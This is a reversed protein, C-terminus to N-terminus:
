TLTYAFQPIKVLAENMGCRLISTHPVRYSLPPSCKTEWMQSDLYPAGPMKPIISQAPPGLPGGTESQMQSAEADTRRRQTSLPNRLM